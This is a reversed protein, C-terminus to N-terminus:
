MSNYWQYTGGGSVGLMDDPEHQLAGGVVGHLHHVTQRAPSTVLHLALRLLPGNRVSLIFIVLSLCKRGGEKEGEEQSRM